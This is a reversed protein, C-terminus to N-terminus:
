VDDDDADEAYIMTFRNGKKVLADLRKMQESSILIEIEENRGSPYFRDRDDYTVEMSYNDKVHAV